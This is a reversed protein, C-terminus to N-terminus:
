APVVASGHGRVGEAHLPDRLAGGFSRGAARVEDEPPGPAVELSVDFSAYHALLGLLHDLVSVGTAVNAAGTGDVTVRIQTKAAEEAASVTGRAYRVPKARRFSPGFPGDCSAVRANREAELPM